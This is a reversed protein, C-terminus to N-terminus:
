LWRLPSSGRPVLVPDYSGPTASMTVQEAVGQYEGLPTAANFTQPDLYRHDESSGATAHAWEKDFIGLSILWLAVRTLSVHVHYSGGDEARRRLAAVVGVQALWATLYDNVVVIPPLQPAHASGELAMIGAVSGASQDFGPRDKWPGRDGHLTISVYVIGPREGAADSPMLGIEEMFALRRNHFFIDSGQLLQSLIARDRRPDLWASRMGVNASAYIPDNEGEGPRWLNLVDAGHLALSRGLGAGAIVHGMGLARLGSFPQTGLPPLPERASDGIRTIEILPMDALVDRYQPEALMENLTRVVPMVVGAAAGAVELEAANWQAIADTVPGFTLPVGLLKQARLRLNPYMAQPMVWRDDRTRFFIAGMVNGVELSPMVPYRGIREWKGDYFPSLRHPAQRLDVAIDQGPGGRWRHMAAAAVSKALLGIAAAAGIRLPSKVVPDAGTWTLRGGCDASSLGVARLVADLEGPLDFTASKALNAMVDILRSTLAAV